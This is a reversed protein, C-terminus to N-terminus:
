VRRQQMSTVAIHQVRDHEKASSIVGGREAVQHFGM